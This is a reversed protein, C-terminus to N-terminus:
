GRDREEFLFCLSPDASLEEGLLMREEEKYAGVMTERPESLSQQQLQSM